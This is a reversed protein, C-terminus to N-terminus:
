LAYLSWPGTPHAERIQYTRARNLEFSGEVLPLRDVFQADDAEVLRRVHGSMWTDCTVRWGTGDWALQYSSGPAMWYHWIGDNRLPTGDPRHMTTPGNGLGELDEYQRSQTRLVGLMTATTTM